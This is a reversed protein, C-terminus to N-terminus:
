HLALARKEATRAKIKKQERIKKQLQSQILFAGLKRSSSDGLKSGVFLSQSKIVSLFVGGARAMKSPIILGMLTECFALGCSLTFTSKGLWKVFYTSIRDHLDTKIFGRAFFFSIATLWILENTFTAFATSFPLMQLVISATLDIFAWAGVPLPGLVLSLHLDHPPILKAGQPQPQSPSTSSSMPDVEIKQTLKKVKVM